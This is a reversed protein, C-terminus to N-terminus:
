GDVKKLVLWGGLIGFVGVLGWWSAGIQGYMWIGGSALLNASAWTMGRFGFYRGRFAEPALGSSYAMGIPLAAIEGLTFVTMAVVFGVLSQAFWFLMCGVGILTYGIALVPLPNMRRLLQTVPMELVIIIVGNLSMVLGYVATSLGRDTAHISLLFFVQVFSLGMLLMTVLYRRFARNRWADAGADVWSRWVVSPSTVKGSVTRLGHPLYLLALLSFAYTTAADGFFIWAPNKTYLVGAVAPGAAFGTNIALRLLAFATVRQEPGVLDTLLASAPPEYSFVAGGYLVAVGLLVTYNDIFYLGILLSASTFLSFVMTNRRGIADALYGGGMPGMLNGIGLAAMVGSIEVMSFSREKLYLTLFPYVFAGFRNLFQGFVLVFVPRPLARVENILTIFFQITPRM